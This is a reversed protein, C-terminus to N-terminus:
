FRKRVSVGFSNIRYASRPTEVTMLDGRLELTDSLKYGASFGLYPEESNATLGGTYTNGGTVVVASGKARMLLFGARLNVDWTSNAFATLAIGIPIATVKSTVSGAWSGSSTVNGGFLKASGGTTTSYSVEGLDLYGSEIAFRDNLQYGVIVGASTSANKATFSGSDSLNGQNFGLRPELYIGEANASMAAVSLVLVM